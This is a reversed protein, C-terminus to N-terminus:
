DYNVGDVQHQINLTIKSIWFPSEHMVRTFNPVCIKHDVESLGGDEATYVVGPNYKEDGINLTPKIYEQFRKM